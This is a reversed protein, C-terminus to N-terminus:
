VEGTWGEPESPTERLYRIAKWLYVASIGFNVVMFFPLMVPIWECIVKLLMPLTRAHVALKCLDDFRMRYHLLGAIAAGMLATVLVGLFFGLFETWILFIGGVVLGIKIYPLWEELLSDRTWSGLELEALSCRVIEDGNKVLLHEKDVFVVKDFALLDVDSTEEVWDGSTDVKLYIGGQYDDYQKLELPQDVKLVGDKLSFDPILESLINGTSGSLGVSLVASIGTTALFYFLCLVFGYLITKGMRNKLFKAYGPIDYISHIMEAFINM